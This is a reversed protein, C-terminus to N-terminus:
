SPLRANEKEQTRPQPQESCAPDTTNRARFGNAHAAGQKVCMREQYNCSWAQALRYVEDILSFTPDQSKFWKYRPAVQKAAM